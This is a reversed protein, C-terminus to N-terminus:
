PPAVRIEWICCIILGLHECAGPLSRLEGPTSNSFQSKLLVEQHSPTPGCLNLHPIHLLHSLVYSHSKSTNWFWDCLVAWGFNAEQCQSSPSIPQFLFKIQQVWMTTYIYILPSNIPEQNVPALQQSLFMAHYTHASVNLWTRPKSSYMFISYRQSPRENHIHTCKDAQYTSIYQQNCPSTHM